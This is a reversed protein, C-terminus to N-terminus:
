LKISSGIQMLILEKGQSDALNKSAQHDIAIPPFTDYHMGLIRNCGVFDAAILADELAMTFHGGIPLVALDVSFQDKILKMDLHLATDGAYYICRGDMVITFGVPNGGYSGDPLSSSHVANVLKVRTSDLQATGGQNMTMVRELGKKQFWTGVEYNALIIANSQNYIAEVDVIHDQHGHSLLIYDPKLDSIRISQALKNASIFPDLLLTNKDNKLIFCSHGLYTIEM